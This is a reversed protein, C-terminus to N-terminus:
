RAAPSLGHRKEFLNNHSTLADTAPRATPSTPERLELGELSAYTSARLNPSLCVTRTTADITLDLLDFLTHLDARLLLGNTVVNTHDGRYPYIHAAELAAVADCGTLCCRNDYARLLALRFQPQGRRQAVSREVFQRADGVSDVAERDAEVKRQIAPTIDPELGRGLLERLRAIGQNSDIRTVGRNALGSFEGLDQLVRWSKTGPEPPQAIAELDFRSVYHREAHDPWPVGETETVPRANEAALAHAILGGGGTQWFFLDDGAAVDYRRTTAWVRHDKAIQWNGARDGDVNIIWGSM